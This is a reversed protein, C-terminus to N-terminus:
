ILGAKQAAALAAITRDADEDTMSAFIPLCMQRGCAIEANVLNGPDLYKLV